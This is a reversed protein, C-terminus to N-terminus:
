FVEQQRRTGKNNGSEAAQPARSDQHFEFYASEILAFDKITIDELM